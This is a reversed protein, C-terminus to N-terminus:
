KWILEKSEFVPGDKCVRKNGNITEVVCGLCAGIGCAMHEELSLQAPINKEIAIEAVARLMPKPGCAYIVSKEPDIRDLHSSYLASITSKEGSSGDDTSIYLKTGIKTFDASCLILDSTKAGLFFHTDIKEKKLTEELAYLPATGCGGSILVATKGKVISFGNGLAGIVNLKEGKIRKSLIDSGKGVVRYIIEISDKRIKHLSLPRRLLPTNTDSVKIQVFQGPKATKGIDKTSLKMKFYEPAINQNELISCDEQFIM